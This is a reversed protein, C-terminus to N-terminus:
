RANGAAAWYPERIVRKLLKGAPTRPLEAVFDISRPCKYAALQSRCHEILEEALEPSPAVGDILEVAGKVEEGFEPHPIGFVAVDRVAPHSILVDETERPYINVGGSIIMFDKRDTLYLYGEADVYGCDGMTRLNGPLRTGETKEKDGKYSFEPGGVFYITGIEGTPVEKGDEGIIRVKSGRGVSGPHELWDASDITTTGPGDTGAYYEFLIPGWWDIMTRKVDPPCPAAAHIATHHSSLDFSLRRDDPLALMRIFMTPVWQSHTVAHQEILRLAEAADFKEMVVVTGGLRQVSITFQLPAAHYLPAPSLYVTATDIGLSKIFGPPGPDPADVEPLPRIVGKPRGTTGSTYLMFSGQSEEALPEPAYAAIAKEYDDFGPSTGDVMLRVAVGSLHEWDLTTAVDRLSGSIILAKAESDEVIYAVEDTTLHRNVPTLYLGSQLAAWAAEFFVPHNEMVIALHDGRRLGAERLLQALQRSRNGLEGYTRVAGSGM